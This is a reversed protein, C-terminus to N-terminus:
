LRDQRIVVDRELLQGAKAQSVTFGATVGRRPYAVAM